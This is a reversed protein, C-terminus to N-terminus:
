WFAWFPKKTTLSNKKSKCAIKLSYALEILSAQHQLDIQQNDNLGILVKILRLVWLKRRANALDRNAIAIVDRKPYHKRYFLYKGMKKKRMVDIRSNKRESASGIHQVTVENCYGIAYGAKRIRLCLDTEEAYLFYEEDFGNLEDFLNHRMFMSAGLVSAIEGPLSRFDYNTQSQHPYHDFATLETQENRNVIRTGVLGYNNNELYDCLTKLDKSSTLAADPNLFFLFRGTALRAAQNNARGFGRNTENPILKIQSEYDKLVQLSDDDSHNDVVLIEYNVDDQKLISNLCSPILDATNYNVVIVSVDM